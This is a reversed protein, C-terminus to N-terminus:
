FCFVDCPVRETGGGEGGWFCLLDNEANCRHFKAMSTLLRLTAAAREEEEEVATAGKSGAKLVDGAPNGSKTGTPTSLQVHLEDIKDRTLKRSLPPAFAIAVGLRASIKRCTNM